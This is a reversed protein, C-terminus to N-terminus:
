GRAPSLDGMIFNRLVGQGLNDSIDLLFLTGVTVAGFYLMVSAFAFSGVFAYLEGLAAPSWPPQGLRLSNVSLAAVSVTAILAAIYFAAKFLIKKGFSEARFRDSLWFVEIIGLLAGIGIAALSYGVLGTRLGYPNGTSPYYTLDGLIGYEILAYIVAAVLWIVVFTGVKSLRIALIPSM